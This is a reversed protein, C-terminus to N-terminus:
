VMQLFVHPELYEEKLPVVDVIKQERADAVLVIEQNAHMDYAIQMYNRFNNLGSKDSANQVWERQNGSIGVLKDLKRDLHESALIEKGQVNFVNDGIYSMESLKIIKHPMQTNEYLRKVQFFDTKSM